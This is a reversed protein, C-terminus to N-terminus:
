WWEQMAKKDKSDEVRHIADLAKRNGGISPYGGPKSETEGRAMRKIQMPTVVAQHHLAAKTRKTM